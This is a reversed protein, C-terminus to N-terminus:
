RSREGSHVGLMRHDLGATRAAAADLVRYPDLILRGRMVTALDAPALRRFEPWPTMIALADVGRAAELASPAATVNPHVAASAPVIPDFVRVPWPTLQAILQLAASNKVSDTNEKYALGLAGLRADPMNALLADQLERFAWDKRHRSNAVVARIAGADTGHEDSLRLVTALDREINGGALGLGPALYAHQGIRADLKLAPAIEAWDAGVRECLEALTNAITVSAALACNISIKALEASELRMPLLPCGFSALFRQWASPLPRAPDVCGLVFREPRTAREVARGFVLTEVQYQISRGPRQRARTFGPPVQSLIVITADARAHVLVLDLLADIERLDSVGAADTPVDAAVYILDCDRLGTADASFAIRDRHAHLLDDLGPECVPLAGVAIRGIRTADPDFGLTRAGQHSAAVASCLGLHTMGAYAIHPLSM